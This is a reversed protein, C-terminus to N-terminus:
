ARPSLWGGILAPPLRLSQRVVVTKMTFVVALVHGWKGEVGVVVQIVRALGLGLMDRVTNCSVVHRLKM